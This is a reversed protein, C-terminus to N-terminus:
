LLCTLLLAPSSCCCSSRQAPSPKVFTQEPNELAESLTQLSPHRQLVGEVDAPHGVLDDGVYGLDYESQGKTTDQMMQRRQHIQPDKQNTQNKKM